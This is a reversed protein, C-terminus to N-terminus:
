ENDEPAQRNEDGEGNGDVPEANLGINNIRDLVFENVQAVVDNYVCGFRGENVM